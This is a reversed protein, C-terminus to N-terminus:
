LPPSYCTHHNHGKNPPLPERVPRAFKSISLSARGKRRQWLRVLFVCFLAALAGVTFSLLM